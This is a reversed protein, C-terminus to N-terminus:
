FTDKLILVNSISKGYIKRKGDYDIMLITGNKDKSCTIKLLDIEHHRIIEYVGKSLRFWKPQYCTNKTMHDFVKDSPRENKDLLKKDFVDMQLYERITAEYNNGVCDGYKPRLAEYLYDLSTPKNKELLIQCIDGRIQEGIKKKDIIDINILSDKIKQYPINSLVKIQQKIVDQITRLSNDIMITDVHEVKISYNLTSIAM